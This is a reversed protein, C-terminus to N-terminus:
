ETNAKLGHTSVPIRDAYLHSVDCWGLVRPTAWKRSREDFLVTTVSTPAIWFGSWLLPLPIELLLALWTLGFGGHCFFGIKKRNSRLIRYRGGERKYGLEELLTDSNKRIYKLKKTISLKHLPKLDALSSWDKRNPARLVEAPTDWAMLRGWPAQETTWESLERLWDLYIPKKGLANATYQMTHVARPIPSCYIRHLGVRKMRKALSRAERHGAATITRREYDPDAHRIIFLKMAGDYDL